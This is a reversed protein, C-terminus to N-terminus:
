NIICYNPASSAGGDDESAEVIITFEQSGAAGNVDTVEITFSSTGATTPTGSIVGTSGALSLGDPLSSPAVSFTYPSTGGQASITESYAVGPTGGQLVAGIPVPDNVGTSAVGLLAVASLVNGGGLIGAGGLLTVGGITATFSSPIQVWSDHLLLLDFPTTPIM